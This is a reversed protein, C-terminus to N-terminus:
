GLLEVVCRSCSMDRIKLLQDGSEMSTILERAKLDKRGRVRLLEYAVNKLAVDAIFPSEQCAAKRQMSLRWLWVLIYLKEISVNLSRQQRCLKKMHFLPSCHVDMLNEPLLFFNEVAPVTISFVRNMGEGNPFQPNAPEHIREYPLVTSKLFDSICPHTSNQSHEANIQLPPFLRRLYQASIRVPNQKAALYHIIIYLLAYRYGHLGKLLHLFPEFSDPMKFLNRQNSNQKM